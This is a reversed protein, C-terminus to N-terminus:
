QLAIYQLRVQVIIKSFFSYVKETNTLLSFVPKILLPQYPINKAQPIQYTVISKTSLM